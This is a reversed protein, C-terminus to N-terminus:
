AEPEETAEADATDAATDAEGAVAAEDATDAEETHEGYHVTGDEHLHAEGSEIAAADEESLEANMQEQLAALEAALKANEEKNIQATIITCVIALVVFVGAAIKTILKLKGEANSAANKGLFTEAGGGIAGLGQRQGQQMLVVAVLVLSVLILVINLIISLATM